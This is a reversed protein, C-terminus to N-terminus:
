KTNEMKGCHKCTKTPFNKSYEWEHKCKKGGTEKELKKIKREQRMRSIENGRAYLQQLGGLTELNRALLHQIQSDADSVDRAYLSDDFDFDADADRAYLSAGSPAYRALATGAILAASALQYLVSLQM